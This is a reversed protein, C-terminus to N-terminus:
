GEVKGRRGGFVRLTARVSGVAEHRLIGMPIYWEVQGQGFVHRLLSGPGVTEDNLM